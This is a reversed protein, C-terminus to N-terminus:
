WRFEPQNSTMCLHQRAHLFSGFNRLCWRFSLESLLRLAFVKIAFNSLKGRKMWPSTARRTQHITFFVFNRLYLDKNVRSNFLKVPPSCVEAVCRRVNISIGELFNIWKRRPVTGTFNLQVAFVLLRVNYEDYFWNFNKNEEQHKQEAELFPFNFSSSSDKNKRALGLNKGSLFRQWYFRM